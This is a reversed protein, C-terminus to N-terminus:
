ADRHETEAPSPTVFLMRTPGSIEARHWAGRPVLAGEQASLAVSKPQEGDDLHLIMSGSLVLVLEEGRQHREWWTWSCRYEFISLVRGHGFWPVTETQRWAGDDVALATMAQDEALHLVTDRGLTFAGTGQRISHSPTPTTTM